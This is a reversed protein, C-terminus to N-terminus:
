RTKKEGYYCCKKIISWKKYLDCIRNIEEVIYVKSTYKNM